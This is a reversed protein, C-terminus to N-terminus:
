NKLWGEKILAQMIAGGGMELVSSYVHPHSKSLHNRLTSTTNGEKKKSYVRRATWLLILSKKTTNVAFYTNMIQNKCKQFIGWAVNKIIKNRADIEKFQKYYVEITSEIVTIEENGGMLMAQEMSMM